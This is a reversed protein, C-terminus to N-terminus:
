DGNMLIKPYRDPFFDLMRRQCSPSFFFSGNENLRGIANKPFHDHDPKMNIFAPQVIPRQTDDWARVFGAPQAALSCQSFAIPNTFSQTRDFSAACHEHFRQQQM